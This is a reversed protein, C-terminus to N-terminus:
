LDESGIGISYLILDRTNYSAKTTSTQGIYPNVDLKSM